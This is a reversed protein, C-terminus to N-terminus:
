DLFCGELPHSGFSFLGPFPCFAPTLPQPPRPDLGIKTVEKRQPRLWSVGAM